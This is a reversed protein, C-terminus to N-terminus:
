HTDAEMEDETMGHYGSDTNGPKGLRQPSKSRSLPRQQSTYEGDEAIQFQTVKEYFTTTKAPTPGAQANPAFVDTLPQRQELADRKRATRPTKGRLKGPTKFVDAFNRSLM